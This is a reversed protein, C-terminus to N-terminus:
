TNPGVLLDIATRLGFGPSQWTTKVKAVPNVNEASTVKVDSSPPHAGFEYM